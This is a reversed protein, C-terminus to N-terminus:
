TGRRFFEEDEHGQRTFVITTWEGSSYQKFPKFGHAMYVKSVKAAEPRLLGSLILHGKDSSRDSISPALRILDRALINAAIIQFRGKFEEDLGKSSFTVVAKNLRANARAVKIAVPDIDVGIAKKANLKATAIALIGTGTGVDLFSVHRNARKDHMLRLLAALCTKTTAHSGTGFAMGPDIEIVIDGPKKRVTRWTPKIVITKNGASLRITKVQQRWKSSWDEDKYPAVRCKWGINNLGSKLRALEELAASSLYGVLVTEKEQTEEAEKEWDSFATLRNKPLRVTTERVGPSGATIILLAAIDKAISAGKATIEVLNKPWNKLQKEPM